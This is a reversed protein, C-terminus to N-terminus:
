SVGFFEVLHENVSDSADHQVWHSANEFIVLKGADCLDLSPQAMNLSLAVDQAGWLVLTPVKIHLDGSMRVPMRV